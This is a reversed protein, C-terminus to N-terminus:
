SCGEITSTPQFSFTNSMTSQHAVISRISPCSDKDSPEKLGLQSTINVYLQNFIDSIQKPDSILKSDENLTIDNGDKYGKNSLFPKITPWFEQKETRKCVQGHFVDQYSTSATLYM